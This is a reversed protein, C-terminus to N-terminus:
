LLDDVHKIDSREAREVVSPWRIGGSPWGIGGTTAEAGFDGSAMSAEEPTLLPDEYPRM